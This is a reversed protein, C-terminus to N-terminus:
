PVREDRSRGLAYGSVAQIVACGLPVMFYWRYDNWQDVFARGQVHISASIAFVGAIAFWLGARGLVWLAYLVHDGLARSAFPRRAWVVLSRVGLLALLAAVAIEFARM